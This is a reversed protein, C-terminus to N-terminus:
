LSAEYDELSGAGADKESLVATGPEVPWDIGITPDAFHISRESAPAYFDTVKYSVITNEVLTCFGHAFGAPIWFMRPEEASLEVSAHSGYTPSETRLDVAVDFISGTLVRVLKGQADPEAQLHLGRVTGVAESFSQNDQVFVDPVGIKTFAQLNYTEGFTGREDSYVRTEIELVGPLPENVVRM